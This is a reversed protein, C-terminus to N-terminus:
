VKVQIKKSEEKILSTKELFAYLEAKYVDPYLRFHGVHSSKDFCNWYVPIGMAEWSERAQKNARVSGISDRTSVFILAPARVTDTHYMQSGRIYHATAAKHFTKLHYRIYQQLANQLVKNGPFVAPPLGIHIETVDVSSDWIQGCVKDLVCQYKEKELSVRVLIEGWLYAGVSFGHVLLPTYNDNVKLFNLVDKAVLQIGKAPWLVQWPTPTIHLVNFGQELYLNAYKMVNKRKAMLWTMCVVLPKDERVSLKLNSVKANLKENTILEINKTIRLTSINRIFFASSINTYFQQHSSFGINALNRPTSCLIVRLTTM